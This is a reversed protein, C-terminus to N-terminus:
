YDGMEDQDIYSSLDKEIKDDQDPVINTLTSIMQDKIETLRAREIDVRPNGLEKALCQVIMYQAIFNWFEPFDVLDSGSAPINVSRIFWCLLVPQTVVASATANTTLAEYTLTLTTSTLDEVRTGDPFEDCAVFDGVQLGTTSAIGTIVASGAVTAGAITTQSTEERSKPYLRVRTGARPDNNMLMYGYSDATQYRDMLSAVEFRKEIKIRPIDYVKSGNDYVLRLIKNGYINAPLSYESKGTNLKIPEVSVFYMDEINLKHIEAECFRLAEECYTLLEASTIFVEEQLDLKSKVFGSLFEYTKYASM